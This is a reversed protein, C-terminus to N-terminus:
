RDGDGALVDHRLSQVPDKEMRELKSRRMKANQKASLIDKIGSFVNKNIMFIIDQLRDIKGIMKQM